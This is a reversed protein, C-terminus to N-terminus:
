YYESVIMTASTLRMQHREKTLPVATDMVIFTINLANVHFIRSLVSPRIFDRIIARM